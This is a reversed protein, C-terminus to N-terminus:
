EDDREVKERLRSGVLRGGADFFLDFSGQRQEVREGTALKFGYSGIQLRKESRRGFRYVFGFGKEQSSIADPIGLLAVVSEVPAGLQLDTEGLLVRPGLQETTVTCGGALAILLALGVARMM